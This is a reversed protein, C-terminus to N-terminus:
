TNANDLEWIPLTPSQPKGRKFFTQHAGGATTLEAKDPYLLIVRGGKLLPVLGLCHLADTPRNHHVGFADISSWGLGQAQKGWKDLFVGADNIIQEWRKEDYQKPRPMTCLRAFGQAWDEPVGNAAVIAAREELPEQLLKVLQDRHERLRKSLVVPLANPSRVSLKDDELLIVEGGLAEVQELLQSALIM